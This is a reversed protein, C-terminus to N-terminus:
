LVFFFFRSVTLTATVVRKRPKDDCSTSRSESSQIAASVRGELELLKREFVEHKEEMKKQNQIITQLLGQQEQLVATLSSTNRGAPTSTSRGTTICPRRVPPITLGVDDMQAEDNTDTGPSNRDDDFEDGVELPSSNEHLLMGPGYHYDQQQSRRLVPSIIPLRPENAPRRTHTSSCRDQIAASCSAAENLRSRTAGARRAESYFNGLPM